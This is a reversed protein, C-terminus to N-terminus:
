KNMILKSNKTKRIRYLEDNFKIGIENNNGFLEEFSYVKNKQIKRNATDDEKENCDM